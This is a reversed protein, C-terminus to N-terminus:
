RADGPVIGKRQRRVSSVFCIFFQGASYLSYVGSSSDLEIARDGDNLVWLITVFEQRSSRVSRDAVLIRSNHTAVVRQTSSREVPYQFVQPVNMSDSPQSVFM